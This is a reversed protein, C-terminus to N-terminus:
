TLTKVPVAGPLYTDLYLERALYYAKIRVLLVTAKKLSSDHKQKISRRYRDLTFDKDMSYKGSEFRASLERMTKIIFQNSQAVLKYARERLPEVNPHYGHFFDFVALFDNLWKYYSNLGSPGHFWTNFCESVFQYFDDMSAEHFDYDLFGPEGKLRGVEKLEKEIRTAVTPMMKMFFAPMYGDHCIEELFDLNENLTKYTTDPQFLMFRYDINIGLGKLIRVGDLNDTPELRKNMKKLGAETGDEIELFVQFLGHTKMRDFLPYEVEDPRCNIKWLVRGMLQQEKLAKCFEEVWVSTRSTKLPFDDDQFLFVRCDDEEYLRAMEEVLKEPKRVRKVPGPPPSYYERIDCYSCHHICGRGALLTAFKKELAFEKLEPRFPFPFSDLDPELARLENNVMTGDERYSIGSIRKWDKDQELHNVLDLITNEGEFRVLSDLAPIIGLLEAPRLSAYHGGATFHNQIGNSRLYETLAQFDYIHNEFIISFGVLLPDLEKLDKLIEEREKKIDIFHVNYGAGSLIAHMYGIGLNEREQFAIFVVSKMSM